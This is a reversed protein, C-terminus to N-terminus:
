RTRSLDWTFFSIEISEQGISDISEIKIAAIRRENTMVCGVNGVEGVIFGMRTQSSALQNCYEWTPEKVEAMSVYSGNLEAIYYIVRSDVQAYGLYFGVDSVNANSDGISGTDLDFTSQAPLNCLFIRGSLYEDFGTDRLDRLQPEPVIICPGSNAQLTQLNETLEFTVQFLPVQTAYTPTELPTIPTPTERTPTNIGLQTSSAATRTILNLTPSSTVIEETKTVDIITPSPRGCAFLLEVLVVMILMSVVLKKTGIMVEGGIGM